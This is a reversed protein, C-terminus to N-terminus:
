GHLRLSAYENALVPSGRTINRVHHLNKASYYNIVTFCLGMMFM